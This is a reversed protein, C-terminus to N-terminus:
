RPIRNLLLGGLIGLGVDVVKSATPGEFTWPDPPARTADALAELMRMYNETGTPVSQGDTLEYSPGPQFIFVLFWAVFIIIAIATIM